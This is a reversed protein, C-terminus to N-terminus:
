VHSSSNSNMCFRNGLVQLLLGGNGPVESFMLELPTSSGSLMAKSSKSENWPLLLVLFCTKPHNQNTGLFPEMEMMLLGDKSLYKYIWDASHFKLEM